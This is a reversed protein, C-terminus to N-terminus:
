EKSRRVISFISLVILGLWILKSLYLGERQFFDLILLSFSCYFCIAWFLFGIKGSQYWSFRRYHTKLYQYLGLGLIGIGLWALDLFIKTNLFIGIGGFILFYLLSLTLSDFGEWINKNLSKFRWAAMLIVGLFAGEKPIEFFKNALKSFVLGAFLLFLSTSYIEQERWGEKIQRRWFTFTSFVFAIALTWFLPTIQLSGITLNLNPILM